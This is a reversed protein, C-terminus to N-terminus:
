ALNEPSGVIVGPPVDAPRMAIQYRMPCHPDRAQQAVRCFVFQPSLKINFCAVITDEAADCLNDWFLGIFKRLETKQVTPFAVKAEGGIVFYKMQLRPCKVDHIITNRIDILGSSWTQRDGRLMNILGKSAEGPEKQLFEQAKREFKADDDLQVFSLDHGLLVEAVSKVPVKGKSSKQGFLHYLVTRAKVFFDKFLRNLAPEVDELVSLHGNTIEVCRGTAVDQLHKEIFKSFEVHADYCERMANFLLGHAKRFGDQEEPRHLVAKSLNFLQITLRFAWESHEADYLKKVVASQVGPIPLRADQPIWGDKVAGVAMDQMFEERSLIRLSAENYDISKERLCAIQMGNELQIVAVDGDNSIVTGKM